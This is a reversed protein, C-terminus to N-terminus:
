RRENIGGIFAGCKPCSGGNQSVSRLSIYNGCSSCKTLDSSGKAIKVESRAAVGRKIMSM